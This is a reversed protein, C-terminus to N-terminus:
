LTNGEVGGSPWLMWAVVVGALLFLLVGNQLFFKNPQSFLTVLPEAVQVCFLVTLYALINDRLFFKGVLVAVVLPLLNLM